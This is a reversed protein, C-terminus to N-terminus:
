IGGRYGRSWGVFDTCSFSVFSRRLTGVAAMVLSRSLKVKWSECLKWIRISVARPRWIGWLVVRIMLRLKSVMMETLCSINVRKGLRVKLKQPRMEWDRLLSCGMILM